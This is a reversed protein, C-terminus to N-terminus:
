GNQARGIQRIYKIRKRKSLFEKALWGSTVIFAPGFFIISVLTLVMLITNM